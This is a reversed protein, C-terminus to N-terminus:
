GAERLVSGGDAQREKMKELLEIRNLIGLRNTEMMSESTHHHEKHGDRAGQSEEDRGSSTNSTEENENDNYNNDCWGTGANEDEEEIDPPTLFSAASSGEIMADAIAFTTGSRACNLFVKVARALNTGDPDVM